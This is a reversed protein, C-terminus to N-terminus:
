KGSIKDSFYEKIICDAVNGALLDGGKSTFHGFDGAFRDVFYDEYSDKRIAEKFIKRNDVFKIKDTPKFIEKLPELRRRPYQVCVLEIGKGLVIDALKCYNRRTMESVKDTSRVKKVVKNIIEQAERKRGEKEYFRALETYVIDTGPATEIAKKFMGEALSSRGEAAYCWGLEMYAAESDPNLELSKKFLAEAELYAQRQYYYRGFELYPEYARPNSEIAKEFMERAEDFRGWNSYCQGLEIFARYDNGSLDLTKRFMEESKLYEQREMWYRGYELYPVYEKSDARIARDFLEQAKLYDEREIYYRAFEIYTDYDKPRIKLAKNFLREAMMSDDKEQYYHARTLYIEKLIDNERAKMWFLKLIRYLRLSKVYRRFGWSAEAHPVDAAQDNIGMMTVVMNPNYQRLNDELRSLLYTTDVGPVAKNIVSFKIDPTVKELIRGVKRPYSDWGGEATTSEGLFLIRYEGGRSLAIRNRNEKLVLYIVGGAQLIIDAIVLSLAAGFLMLAIKQRLTIKVM